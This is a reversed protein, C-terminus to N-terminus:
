CAGYECMQNLQNLEKKTLYDTVKLKHLDSDSFMIEVKTKQDTKRKKRQRIPTCSVDLLKSAGNKSAYFMKQNIGSYYAIATCGGLWNTLENCVQEIDERNITVDVYDSNTEFEIDHWETGYLHNIIAVALAPDADFLRVNIANKLM